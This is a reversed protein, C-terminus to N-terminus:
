RDWLFCLDLTLLEYQSHYEIINLTGGLEIKQGRRNLMEKASKNKICLSISIAFKASSLVGYKEALITSSTTPDRSRAETGRNM